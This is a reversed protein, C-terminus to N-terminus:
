CFRLVSVQAYSVHFSIHLKNLFRVEARCSKSLTRPSSGQLGVARLVSMSQFNVPGFFWDSRSSVLGPSVFIYMDLNYLFPFPLFDLLEEQIIAWLISLIILYMLIAFSFNRDRPCANQDVKYFTVRLDVLGADQSDDCLNETGNATSALIIMIM